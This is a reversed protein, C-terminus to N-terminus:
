VKELPPGWLRKNYFASGKGDCSQGMEIYNTAFSSNTKRRWSWITQLVRCECKDVTSLISTLCINKLRDSFTISTFTLIVERTNLWFDLFKGWRFAWHIVHILSTIKSTVMLQIVFKLLRKKNITYDRM